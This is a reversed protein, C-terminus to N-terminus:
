KERIVSVLTTQAPHMEGREGNGDLDAARFRELMAKQLRDGDTEWLGTHLEDTAASAQATVMRPM